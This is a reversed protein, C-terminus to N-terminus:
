LIRGYGCLRNPKMEENWRLIQCSVSKLNQVASYSQLPCGAVHFPIHIFSLPQQLYNPAQKMTVTSIMGVSKQYGLGYPLPNYDM